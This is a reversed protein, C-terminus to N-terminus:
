KWRITRHDRSVTFGEQRFHDGVAKVVAMTENWQLLPRVEKDKTKVWRKPRFVGKAYIGVSLYIRHRNSKYKVRETVKEISKRVLYRYIYYPFDLTNQKIKIVIINKDGKRRNELISLPRTNKYNMVKYVDKKKTLDVSSFPIIHDIEWIEGRNDWSWDDEFQSEIWELFFGRSCGISERIYSSQRTARIRGGFTINYYDKDKIQINNKDLIYKKVDNLKADSGLHSLAERVMNSKAHQRKPERKILHNLGSALRSRLRAQENNQKEEARGLNYCNKCKSGGNDGKQRAFSRHHISACRVCLFENEHIGEIIVRSSLRELRLTFDKIRFGNVTFAITRGCDTDFEVILRVRDAAYPAVARIQKKWWKTHWKLNKQELIEERKNM